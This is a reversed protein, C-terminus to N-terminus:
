MHSANSSYVVSQVVFKVAETDLKYRIYRLM